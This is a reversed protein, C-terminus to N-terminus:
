DKSKENPKRWGILSDFPELGYLSECAHCGYCQSRCTRLRQSLSKAETTLWISGARAQEILSWNQDTQDGHVYSNAVWANLPLLGANYIEEFSNAWIPHDLFREALSNPRFVWCSTQRKHGGNPESVLRGWFKFVDVVEAYADFDERDTWVM